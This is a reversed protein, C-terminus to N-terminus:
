CNLLRQCYIRQFSLSSARISKMIKVMIMIIMIIIIIVQNKRSVVQEMEFPHSLNVFTVSLDVPPPVQHLTVRKEAHIDREEAHIDREMMRMPVMSMCHLTHQQSGIMEEVTMIVRAKGGQVIVEVEAAVRRWVYLKTITGIRDFANRAATDRGKVDQAACSPKKGASPM